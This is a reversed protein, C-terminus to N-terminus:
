TTQQTKHPLADVIEILEQRTHIGLKSYISHAQTKVTSPSVVFEKAISKITYGRALLILVESERPTLNASSSVQECSVLFDSEPVDREIADESRKRMIFASAVAVVLLVASITLAQGRMVGLLYSISASVVVSGFFLALNFFFGRSPAFFVPSESFAAAIMAIMLVFDLGISVLILAFIYSDPTLSAAFIGACVVLSTIVLLLSTEFEESRFVLWLVVAVCFPLPYSFLWIESQFFLPVAQNLIGFTSGLALMCIWIPWQIKKTNSNGQTNDMFGGSLSSPYAFMCSGVILPLLVFVITQALGPLSDMLRFLLGMIVFSICLSVFVSFYDLGRHNDAWLKFTMGFVLGAFTLGVILLPYMVIPQDVFVKRAELLVAGAMGIIIVFVTLLRYTRQSQLSRGKIGLFVFCLVQPVNWFLALLQIAFGPDSPM